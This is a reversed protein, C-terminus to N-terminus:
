PLILECETGAARKMRGKTSSGAVPSGIQSFTLLNGPITAMYDSGMAIKLDPLSSSCPFIVGGEQTSMAAGQVQSYYGNVVSQDLLLLSTGTDAIAPNNQANHQVSGNGVAFSSSPFQWFGSSEDVATWHLPGDFQTTDIKGFEYAGPTAHKLNATLVPEQLTPSVNDFFTKQAATKVTNLISFALGVLGNSATDQVFEQSVSTALEVAQSKVIAGGINVTDTGVTGAANSNDGYSISFTSGQQVKFTTSKAPDFDTHGAAESRPLGTNFVWSDLSANAKHKMILPDGFLYM